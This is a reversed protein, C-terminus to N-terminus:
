VPSLLSLLYRKFTWQTFPAPAAIVIFDPSEPADVVVLEMKPLITEIILELYDKITMVESGALYLIDRIDIKASHAIDKKYKKTLYLIWRTVDHVCIYNRKTKGSGKLIPAIKKHFANSIAQNLGLHKPGDLGYIGCIRLISYNHLYTKIVEESLYKSLAYHNEPNIPTDEGIVPYQSGHVGAMSAFIFYSNHDRAYAVLKMTSITNVDYQFTELNVSFNVRAALHIVIDCRPLGKPLPSVFDWVFENKVGKRNRALHWIEYGSDELIKVLYRGVFGTSGTM